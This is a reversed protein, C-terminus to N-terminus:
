LTKVEVDKIYNAPINDLYMAAAYACNFSCNYLGDYHLKTIADAPLEVKILAYQKVDGLLIRINNSNIDGDLFLYVCDERDHSSHMKLGENKIADINSIDTIHYGTITKDWCRCQTPVCDIVWLLNEVTKKMGAIEREYPNM